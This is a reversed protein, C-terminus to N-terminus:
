RPQYVALIEPAESAVEPWFYQLLNLNGPVKKFGGLPGAHTGGGIIAEFAQRGSFGHKHRLYRAIIAGTRDCGWMCHIYAGSAIRDMIMATQKEDPVQQSNMRMKVLDVHEESCLRALQDTFADKLPVHLLIVSRAGLERLQRIYERVKEASNNKKVPNLLYGGAMLTQDIIRFNYPVKGSGGADEFKKVVSQAFCSAAVLGFICFFFLRRGASSRRWIKSLTETM